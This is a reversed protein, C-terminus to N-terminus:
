FFIRLGGRLSTINGTEERRAKSRSRTLNGFLLVQDHLRYNVNLADSATGSREITEFEQYTASLSLKPGPNYSLALSHRVSERDDDRGISLTGTLALLPTPTWTSLLHVDSRELTSPEGPVLISEGGLEFESRSYGLGLTWNETPRTSLTERWAWGERELGSLPDIVEVRQFDSTLRLDPLLVLSALLRTSRISHLLLSEELEDREQFTLVVDVTRLPTWRLSANYAEETRLLIPQRRNEVDSYRYGLSLQLESTLDVSLGASAHEERYDRRVFGAALDEDTSAGVSVRGSVRGAQFRAGVDGRYFNSQLDQLGTTIEIELLARLETVLM